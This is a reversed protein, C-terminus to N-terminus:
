WQAISRGVGGLGGALVYTVDPKFSYQPKTSKAVKVLDDDHAEFVIKGVHRGSQMFRYAEEIQSYNYTVVPKPETIKGEAMLDIVKDLVDSGVEPHYINVHCLDLFSFTANRMFPGMPLRSNTMADYKGVEIFRGYYAICDWSARLAEGATSNLIVDVGRGGTMRKIGVAFSLDRSSFIHDEPIGYAEVLADRKAISGVTTYVECGFLQALQIAAQGLGGAGWHILVSEGKKVRASNVLAHYATCYNIPTTAAATFSINDPLKKALLANGRAYTRFSGLFIAVARDGKKFGKVDRGVRSVYGACEGGMFPDEVRGLAVLVDHFSLGTTKVEIELENPGLPTDFAEDDVFHLSDLLGPSGVVLKLARENSADKFPRVETQGRLPNRSTFADNMGSHVLMRPLCLVNDELAYQGEPHDSALVMSLVQLATRAVTDAAEHPGDAFSLVSFKTDLYEWRAARALGVMVDAFPNQPADGGGENLWLLAPLRCARKLVDFDRPTVTFEGRPRDLDLLSVCPKEGNGADEVLRGFDNFEIVTADTGQAQAQQRIAEVVETQMKSSANYLVTLAAPPGAAKDDSAQDQTATPAAAADDEEETATAILVSTAQHEPSSGPHDKLVADLKGFGSKALAQTWGEDDLLPAHQKQRHPEESLWWGPLTGFVFPGGLNTPATCELLVLKGGPKLLRRANKLSREINKTAHVVNAAMVVDYSAATFGQEVPDTEIDLIKFRMRDAYSSFKEQAKEFFGMSIDTFDYSQFRAISRRGEDDACLAELLPVTTGGTGAGLELINLASNKHALLSMYRALQSGASRLGLGDRYLVSLVEGSFLLQLADVEGTMIEWINEGVTAIAAGDASTALLKDALAKHMDDDRACEVFAKSRNLIDGRQYRDLQHQMWSVYQRHYPQCYEFKEVGGSEEIKKMCRYVYGYALKELEETLKPVNEPMGFGKSVLSEIQTRNLTTVDPKWTIAYYPSRVSSLKATDSDDEDATGLHKSIETGVAGELVILPKDTAPDIATAWSVWKRFGLREGRGHLHLKPQHKALDASLWLNPISNPLMANAMDSGGKTIGILSSQLVGDLMAPHILHDQVYGFKMMGAIDAAKLTATSHFPVTEGTHTMRTAGVGYALDDLSMFCPGFQWGIENWAEYMFQPDASKDCIAAHEAAEKRCKAIFEAEEKGADVPTHKKEFETAIIGTCHLRWADNSWTCLRFESWVASRATASERLPRLYFHVDAGDTGADPINLVSHFFVDKFLFGAIAKDPATESAIQRAAEIAMVLMGAAPYVCQGQVVHDSMWPNEEHRLYNHWCAEAPDWDPVPAGLLEHRPHKRFRFSSSIRSEAWYIQSHDFPYPPLDVLMQPHHKQLLAAINPGFGHCHLWGLASMFTKPGAEKRKLAPAYFHRGKANALLASERIPGQLTSHPGVELFHTFGKEAGERAGKAPPAAAMAAVADVFRVPSLLNRVWYAPTSLESLADLKAGTVTSYFDTAAEASALSPAGGAFVSALLTEYRTSIPAMYKSHYANPVRLLRAFVSKAELALRITELQATPGSLTVSTPSNICAASVDALQQQALEAAVDEASLGVAMMGVAEKNGDRQSAAVEESVVGRFYAVAWAAERSIAGAAYAAAIEGSSHGVVAHPVIGVHRFLDILAVQLVTCLTQSVLPNDVSLVSSDAATAVATWAAEASWEAGLGRLHAFAAECSEGFVPFQARLDLGMSPWQAGQGTFVLALRPTNNKSYRIRQEAPAAALAKLLAAPSDAVTFTTNALQSRKATLTHSLDGLLSSAASSSSDDDPFAKSVYDHLTAAIRKLGAEDSSSWPFVFYDGKTDKNDNSGDVGNTGNVEVPPADLTRYFAAKELGLSSLYSKADDIIISFTRFDAVLRFLPPSTGGPVRNPLHESPTPAEM